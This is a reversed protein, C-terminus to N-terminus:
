SLIVREEPYSFETGGDVKKRYTLTRLIFILALSGIRGVIMSTIIFLKGLWSLSATIDTSVGLTVFASLSEFMIDFFTKNRESLLLCFTTLAIWCGSLSVIAITKYVQDKAITRGKIEVAARGIIATYIIACYIALSTIKIGSGTSGPSAGIFSLVMMLFISAQQLDGMEVTMFGSGRFSTVYFLANTLMLLPSQHQLINGHEIIWFLILSTLLLVTTGYVIIKNHLSLTYRRGSLRAASYHILEHWTVFGLGGALMLFTTTLLMIYSTSYPEMGHPFLTIGANCFASVAHFLSYFLAQGLPFETHVVSFICIMGILETFLTVLIIFIIFNKINKWTEFELLQGALLQTAFGFDILLSMLFITLTIIGLGGIQILTLIIGHGIPTFSDLPITFLGTVCTASTATFLLDILSLEQTRAIPLALAAAGIIIAALVSIIVLAAPSFRSLGTRM